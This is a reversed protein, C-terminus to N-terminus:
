RVTGRRAGLYRGPRAAARLHGAISGIIRHLERDTHEVGLEAALLKTVPTVRFGVLCLEQMARIRIVRTDRLLTM